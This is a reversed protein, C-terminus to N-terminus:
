LSSRHPHGLERLVAEAAAVGRYNAEEFLSIGSLDSHAFHIPGVPRAAERKEAGWVFGPKPMIM